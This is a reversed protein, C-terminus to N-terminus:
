KNKRMSGCILSEMNAVCCTLNHAESTAAVLGSRGEGWGAQGPSRQPSGLADLLHLRELMDEGLVEEQHFMWPDGEVLQTQRSPAAM